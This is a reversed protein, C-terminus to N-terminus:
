LHKLIRASEVKLAIQPMTIDPLPTNNTLQNHDAPHLVIELPRNNRFQTGAITGYEWGIPLHYSRFHLGLSYTLSGLGYVIPRSKYKEIDRSHHPGHVLVFGVGADIVAHTLNQTYAAPVTAAYPLPIIADYAGSASEYAHLSFIATKAHRKAEKM